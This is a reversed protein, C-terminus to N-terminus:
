DVFSLLGLAECFAEFKERSLAKTFLDALNNQIPVEQQSSKRSLKEKVYHYHMEIRKTRVHFVLNKAVALASQSNTYITNATNQSVAFQIDGAKHQM